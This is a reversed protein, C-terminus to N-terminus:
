ARPAANKQGDRGLRLLFLGTQGLCFATLAAAELPAWTPALAMVVAVLMWRLGFLYHRGWYERGMVFFGMGTLVALAPYAAHIASGPGPNTLRSALLVATAALAHAGWIPWLM